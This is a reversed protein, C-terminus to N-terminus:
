LNITKAYCGGEINFVSGKAWGHEDDGILYRAPDASLTTKGTGSLGFFLCTEGNDGVNASCHMPMVAKEPLLYNQVAFMSKKMEGAYRLGALLVKRQTFNTIVVAESHTGDRNPDCVFSPVNLITWEAKGKPNYQEPRIFMNRAFLNQWATETNAVVPLYHDDHAGVHVHTVFKDRAGLHDEVRAWLADFKASDFPQNVSGWDVSKETTADRVIFRDK